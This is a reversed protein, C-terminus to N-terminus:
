KRTATTAAAQLALLQAESRMQFRAVKNSQDCPLWLDGKYDDFSVHRSGCGHSPLRFMTWQGTSPTFRFVSDNLSTDTWVNHDKDVITKYPHVQIPLRHYTVRHTHINIEAINSQSWNPVWVTDGHKDASLRRPMNAYPLPSASNNSWTGGGISEYWKIDEPKSLAKRADFEPDIMDFEDVKGTKMDRTAVKSVYSESWWLNDEADYSIGYTTGDGPTKQQYVAWGPYASVKDGTATPDYVMVGSRTNAAARGQSDSDMSNFTGGMVRPAVFLDFTETKPNLRVFNPGEHMWIEGKPNPSAIQEFLMLKGAPDIIKVADMAGSQPDLRILSRNNEWTTRAQTLWAIGKEDLMVDHIGVIGHMGTSPGLSWDQGTYWSPANQQEKLPLEYETVVARAADGSPRPLPQLKLPKSDPGLVEALYKALDDRHHRMIQGEWRMQDARLDGPVHGNYFSNEMSKVIAKWGTEDFRNQLPLDLSHCGTCAVYMVQKMRKHETTDDPLSNFWEYGTLQMGFDALPLMTLNSATTRTGDLVVDAKTTTFGVAQAWLKYSGAVLHPFVYVGKADTYVSTTMSQDTARASVTIGALPKGAKDNIAGMIGPAGVAGPAVGQGNVAAVAVLSALSIGVLAKLLLKTM